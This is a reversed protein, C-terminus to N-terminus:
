ETGEADDDSAAPALMPIAAATAGFVGDLVTDIYNEGAETFTPKVSIHTGGPNQTVGPIVEGTVSDVCLGNVWRARKKLIADQFAARVVWETEGQDDAWRLFANADTIEFFPQKVSETFSAARMGDIAAVTTLVGPDNRIFDKNANIVPRCIAEWYALVRHAVAARLALEHPSPGPPAQNDPAGQQEQSM